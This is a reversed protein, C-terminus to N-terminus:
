NVTDYVGSQRDRTQEVWRQIRSVLWNPDELPIDHGATPHVLIPSRLFAALAGSCAPSVLRDREGAIVLCHASVPKPLYRAAALLQRLANTRRMPASSSIAAGRTAYEEIVSPPASITLEYLLQEREKPSSQCLARFFSTMGRTSMRDTLPSLNSSANILVVHSVVDSWARATELAVMGGLSIGIVGVQGDKPLPLRKAINAITLPCTEDRRTGAGPLDLSQIVTGTTRAFQDGFGYWHRSERALGRILYWRPPTASM